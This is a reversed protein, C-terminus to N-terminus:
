LQDIQSLFVLIPAFSKHSYPESSFLRKLHYERNRSPLPSTSSSSLTVTWFRSSSLYVNSSNSIQKFFSRRIWWYHYCFRQVDGLSYNTPNQFLIQSPSLFNHARKTGCEKVGSCLSSRIVDQWSMIAIASASLINKVFNNRSILGPRKGTVGFCFSLTRYPTTLCGRPRLFQFELPGADLGHKNKKRSELRLACLIRAPPFFLLHPFLLPGGASACEVREDLQTRRDLYKRTVRYHARGFATLTQWNKVGM